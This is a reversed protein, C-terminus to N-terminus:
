RRRCSKRTCRWRRKLSARAAPPRRPTDSRRSSRVRVCVVAPSQRHRHRRVRRRARVGPVGDASKTGTGHAEVLEVTDPGFGARAYADKLCANQGAASPAYIANGKGDSVTGISKLVAYVTDGAAEADALRKLVVMGLGEGLITGDGDADFPRSNGTASPAPTKSFCMFMFIDNFTDTGGTVVVDAKGTALEM